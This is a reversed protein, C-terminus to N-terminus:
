SGQSSPVDRGERQTFSRTLNAFRDLGGALLAGPRNAAAAEQGEGPPASMFRGFLRAAGAAVDGSPSGANGRGAGPQPVGGPPVRM